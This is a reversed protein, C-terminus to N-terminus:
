MLFDNDRNTTKVLQSVCCSIVATCVSGKVEPLNKFTDGNHLNESLQLDYHMDLWDWIKQVEALGM